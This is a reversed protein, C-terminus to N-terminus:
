KGGFHPPSHGCRLAEIQPRCQHCGLVVEHGQLKVEDNATWSGWTQVAAGGTSIEFDLPKYCAKHGVNLISAM